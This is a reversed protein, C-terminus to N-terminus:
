NIENEHIDLWETIAIAAAGIYHEREDDEFQGQGNPYAEYVIDGEVDTCCVTFRGQRLRLYAVLKGDRRYADYQELYAMCTRQFIIHTNM